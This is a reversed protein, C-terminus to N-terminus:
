VEKKGNVLTLANMDYFYADAALDKSVNCKIQKHLLLILVSM